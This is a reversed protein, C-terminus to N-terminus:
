VAAAMKSNYIYDNHTRPILKPIGTTGGSLQFLAPDEPDIVISKLEQVSRESPRGVLESLSLFGEPAAGLVIGLRLTKSSDRIRPVLDRYDFDRTTDPTACAVAGSLEVFYSVERFRHAPLAMIPICGIKQLAFYLYAFEVVNPLQMVVCDLPRLGEDLLNLALQEARENLQSYTVVEDRDIIAVRDAYKSFVAEFTDRLSRDEWYGKQRYRAAFQPPFRVVGDLM